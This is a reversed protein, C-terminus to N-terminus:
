QGMRWPYPTLISVIRKKFGPALIEFFDYREATELPVLIFRGNSIPSENSSLFRGEEAECAIQFKLDKEIETESQVLGADDRVWASHREFEIEFARESIFNLLNNEVNKDSLPRGSFVDDEWNLLLIEKVGSQEILTELMVQFEQEIKADSIRGNDLCSRNLTICWNVSIGQIKFADIVQPIEETFVKIESKTPIFRNGQILYRVELDKSLCCQTLIEVSKGNLICDEIYEGVWDNIKLNNQRTIRSRDRLWQVIIRTQQQMKIQKQSTFYNIKQFLVRKILEVKRSLQNIFNKKIKKKKYSM